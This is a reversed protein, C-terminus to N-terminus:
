MGHYGFLGAFPEPFFGLLPYWYVFYALATVTTILDLRATPSSIKTLAMALVITLFIYAEFYYAYFTMSKIGVAWPLIHVLYLAVPLTFIKRSPYWILAVISVLGLIAILPNAVLPALSRVQQTLFLWKWWADCLYAPIPMNRHYHLMFIHASYLYSIPRHERLLLPIWTAIYTFSSVVAMLMPKLFRHSAFAVILCAALGMAGLWRSAISLGFLLGAYCWWKIDDQRMAELFLWAATMEFALEFISLTALRSMLYWFGGAIM